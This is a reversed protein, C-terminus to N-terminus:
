APRRAAVKISRVKGSLEKALFAVLSDRETGLREAMAGLDIPVLDALLGRLHAEEYTLRDVVRADELGAERVHSLYEAESVAGSVCAAYLDRNELVWGPLDEAVIDSVLMRGGPKLVRRIEAFVAPKDPSLNIVCNSVVHDVSADDIPLREIVAQHLEVNALGAREVNARARALMDESMDVGIVRGGAGVREAALVLDLGAGCGLDLVTQGAEVGAFALPNGCGFSNAVADAPASALAEAGYDPALIPAGAGCGCAGTTEAPKLSKAYFNKVDSHIDTM